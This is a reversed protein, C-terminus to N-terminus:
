CSDSDGRVGLYVRRTTRGSAGGILGIGISGPQWSTMGFHQAEVTWMNVMVPM